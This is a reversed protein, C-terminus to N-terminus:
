NSRLQHTVKGVAQQHLGRERVTYGAATLWEDLLARMLDDEEIIVINSM